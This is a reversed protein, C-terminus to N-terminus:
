EGKQKRTKLLYWTLYLANLESPYFFMASFEDHHHTHSFVLSGVIVCAFLSNILLLSFVAKKINPRFVHPTKVKYAVLMGFIVGLTLGSITVALYPWANIANNVLNSVILFVSTYALFELGMPKPLTDWKHGRFSERKARDPQFTMTISRKRSYVLM